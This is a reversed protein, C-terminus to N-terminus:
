AEEVVAQADDSALWDIPNEVLEDHLFEVADIPMERLVKELLVQLKTHVNYKHVYEAMEDMLVTNAKPPKGVVKEKKEKKGDTKAEENAPMTRRPRM